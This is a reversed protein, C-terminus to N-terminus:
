MAQVFDAARIANLIFPWGGQQMRDVDLGQVLPLKALVSLGTLREMEAPNTREAIDPSPRCGSIVIGAVRLGRARACQVTLATHNLTGLGPRAVVILPLGLAAAFDVVLWQENLPVMLGGVGEVLAVQHRAAVCRCQGLVHDADIERGELRAAVAPALPADLLVPNLQEVPEGSRAGREIFLTDASLREGDIVAAGTAFPKLAVVDHGEARLKAALAATFVTKGVGTDTGTIFFGRMPRTSDISDTSTM